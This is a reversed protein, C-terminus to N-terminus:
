ATREFAGVDCRPGHPRTVLRQDNASMDHCIGVPIRDIAPSGALLALTATPGGHDALASLKPAAVTRDSGLPAVTCGTTDGYVNFGESTFQGICNPGTAGTNAALITGHLFTTGDEIDLGGGGAFAGTGSAEVDNRAFTSLRVLFGTNVIEAGGGAAIANTGNSSATNRTITSNVVIDSQSASELDLGGGVATPTAASANATVQNNSVTSTRLTLAAAGRGEYGGGGANATSHDSQSNVVNGDITSTAVTLLTPGHADIGGGTGLGTSSGSHAAVTNTSVNSRTILFTGRGLSLGGGTATATTSGVVGVTSGVIDVSALHATLDDGGIDLAGGFATASGVSSGTVRNNRFVSDSITADVPNSGSSIKVAGALATLSHVGTVTGDVVNGGFTSGTISFDNAPSTQHFIAGGQASGSSDSVSIARNGQFRSSDITVATDFLFAAGGAADTVGAAAEARVRNGQFLSDAVTLTGDQMYLGGGHSGAVTDKIAVAKNAVVQSDRIAVTADELYIGGGLAFGNSDQAAVNNRVAVHDLTLVGGDLMSIGGGREGLGDTVALSRLHIVRTGTVTLTTGAGGGELIASPNGKFTLNKPVLFNGNCTGKVLIVTGPSANDIKNQLSGTACNVAITGAAASPANASVTLAVILMAVFAVLRGSHM